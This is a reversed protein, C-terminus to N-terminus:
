RNIPQAAPINMQDIIAKFGPHERLTEVPGGYANPFVVWPLWDARSEYATNLWALANDTEGM